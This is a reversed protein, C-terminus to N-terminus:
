KGVIFSKMAITDLSTVLNLIRPNKTPENPSGRGPLVALLERFPIPWMHLPQRIHPLSMEGIRQIEKLLFVPTIEDPCEPFELIHSGQLNDGARSGM